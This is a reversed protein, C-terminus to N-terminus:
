TYRKRRLLSVEGEGAARGVFHCGFGVGFIRYLLLLVTIGVAGEGGFRKTHAGARTVSAELAM